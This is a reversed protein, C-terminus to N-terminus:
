PTVRFERPDPNEATEFVCRLIAAPGSFGAGADLLSVNLRRNEGWRCAAYDGDCDDFATVMVGPLQTRCDTDLGSGGFTGQVQSYDITFQATTLVPSTALGIEVICHSIGDMASAVHPIATICVTALSLRTLLPPVLWRALTRYNKSNM